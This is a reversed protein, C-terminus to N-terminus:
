CSSFCSPSHTSHLLEINLFSQCRDLFTKSSSKQEPKLITTTTAAIPSPLIIQTSNIQLINKDSNSDDDLLNTHSGLSLSFENQQIDSSSSREFITENNFEEDGFDLLNGVTTNDKNQNLEILQSLQQNAQIQKFPNHLPNIFSASLRTNNQSSSPSTPEDKSKRRRHIVSSSLENKGYNNIATYFEIENGFLTLPKKL